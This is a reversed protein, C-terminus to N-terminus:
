YYYVLHKIELLAEMFEWLTSYIHKHLKPEAAPKCVLTRNTAQLDEQKRIKECM